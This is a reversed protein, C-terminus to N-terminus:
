QHKCLFPSSTLCQTMFLLSLFFQKRLSHTYFYFLFFIKQMHSSGRLHCISTSIERMYITTWFTERSMAHQRFGNPLSFSSRFFTSLVFSDTFILSNTDRFLSRVNCGLVKGIEMSKRRMIRESRKLQSFIQEVARHNVWFFFTHCKM